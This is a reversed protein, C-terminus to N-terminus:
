LDACGLDFFKLKESFSNDEHHLPFDVFAHLIEILQSFCIRGYPRVEVFKEVKISSEAMEHLIPVLQCYFIVLDCLFEDGLVFVDSIVLEDSLSDHGDM